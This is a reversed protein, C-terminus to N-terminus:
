DPVHRSGAPKRGVNALRKISRRLLPDPVDKALALLRKRVAPALPAPMPAAADARYPHRDAAVRVRVDKVDLGQVALDQLLRTSELRLRAATSSTLAILLLQGHHIGAVFVEDALAAPLLERVVKELAEIASIAEALRLGGTEERNLVELVTSVLRMDAL